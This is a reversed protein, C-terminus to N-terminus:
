ARKPPGNAATAEGHMASASFGDGQDREAHDCKSPVLFMAHTATNILKEAREQLDGAISV